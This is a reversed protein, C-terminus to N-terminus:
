KSQEGNRYRLAWRLPTSAKADPWTKVAQAAGCVSTRVLDEIGHGAAVGNGHGFSAIEVIELPVGSQAATEIVHEIAGSDIAGMDRRTIVLKVPPIHPRLYESLRRILLSTRHATLRQKGADRLQRGDVMVWICDAAQLFAFRDIRNTDILSNSWEGPLDPLLMDICTRDRKDRLRVHLFGAARGDAQVTHSTMQDPPEGSNWRRAGRSIEDFAMLSRSDAFEFDRLKASALLLYLSVLSATKGADPSGLIGIVHCYKRRMLAAADDFTM